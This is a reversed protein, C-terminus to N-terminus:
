SRKPWGIHQRWDSLSTLEFQKGENQKAKLFSWWDATLPEGQWDKLVYDYPLWGYGKVGWDEGWSNRVLLAGPSTKGIQKADDYGVALLAHGKDKALELTSDPYLLYGTAKSSEPVSDHLRVGFLCPCGATLSVKIQALLEEKSLRPRDLRFYAEAKYNQAQKTVSSPPSEQFNEVTSAWAQEPPVGFESLAKMTAQISAGVGEPLLNNTTKYLFAKSAIFPRFSATGPQEKPAKKNQFYEMLATGAYAACADPPNSPQESVPHTCWSSLDIFSPLALFDQAKLKIPKIPEILGILGTYPVQLYNHELGEAGPNAAIQLITKPIPGAKETSPKSFLNVINGEAPSASIMEAGTIKRAMFDKFLDEKIWYEILKELNRILDRIYKRIEEDQKEANVQKRANLFNELDSKIINKLCGVCVSVDEELERIKTKAGERAEGDPTRMPSILRAVSSAIFIILERSAASEEVRSFHQGFAKTLADLFPQPPLSPQCYFCNDLEPLANNQVLTAAVSVPKKSEDKVDALKSDDQKPSTLSTGTTAIMM